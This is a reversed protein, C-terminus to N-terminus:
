VKITGLRQGFERCLALNVILGFLGENGLLRLIMFGFALGLVSRDGMNELFFGFCFCVVGFLAGVVVASIRLSVIDLIGGASIVSM